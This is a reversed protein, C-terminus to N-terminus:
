SDGASGKWSMQSYSSSYTVNGSFYEGASHHVGGSSAMSRFHGQLYHNLEEQTDFILVNFPSGPVHVDSWKVELRYDGPETPDYKCLITRDKQSERQMEVRFAGKPGRVRVTLQGAGAGRTDCIFRSQYTALVGPEIGPGYVKVKSADPAGSIRVSYPSEPIHDGGYKITLVHRGGEQPKLYLTFTGDRHDYMECYAVKTPGMCHATLEGPGARRTDIFAKIEKGLIGGKLGDGSCIVKTADCSASISVKLPCGKVQRDSWMVNLLYVGPVTPTYIAKFINNQQSILCVPIDAKVGSLSVEPFGAGAASGDIIFEAEEGVRASSLGHGRLVVRTYDILPESEETYALYPSNPLPVDAFYLYMYYEGEEVPTFSLRYRSGAIHDVQIDIQGNPGMIEAKLKGPGADSTDFTIKKQEGCNLVIHNEDDVLNEWGGIVRVKRPNVVRPHFPSGTVEQSNWFVRIDFIGVEQPVYTVIFMGNEKEDVSYDAESDPGVVQIEPRGRLGRADINFTAANGCEALSLGPGVVTPTGGDHVTFTIPSDPIEMGGYTIGIKYKGPVTPMFEILEGEGDPTGKVEIPLHRGLPSTVTVDLEAYGSDQRKVAFQPSWEALLSGDKQHYCRVPVPSGSPSTIFVDFDNAGGYGGTEIFFTADEGLPLSKLGTGHVTITNTLDRVEIIQPCDALQHNGYYIDVKHPVSSNPTYTVQYVGQSVERASHYVEQGGAVIHIALNGQGAKTTDVKFNQERGIIGDVLDLIKVQTPDCVEVLYPKSTVPNGRHLVEIRHTGATQPHYEAQYLNHDLRLVSVPIRSDEPGIVCIEVSGDMERTEIEFTNLSGVVGHKLGEGKAILTSSSRTSSSTTTLKSENVTGERVEVKFPSGPVDEENFIANVYHSVRDQPVFTVDYLGRSKMSVEARVSSKRTTIVLELTGEGAQSADVQFTYPKGAVGPDMNKIKIKSIDYVNCMFPSGLVPNGDLTVIVQHPGVEVPFFQVEFTTTSTKSIDVPIKKSSPGTVLVKCEASELGRSDITFRGGKALSATKLSSDTIVSQKTDAVKVIFPSGPVPEGNFKVSVTHTEPESPKFNVRFKANGESQVYNPVNREGVTVIIELNGAGAQSADIGFYVSKGIVGSGLDSVKVKSADYAKVLFPSGGAPHGGIRVDVTHDGVETPTYEVRYGSHYNGNVYTKLNHQNPGMITVHPQGMNIGNTDVLFAVPHHLPVKELGEGSVQVKSLSSLDVILCEYPSGPVPESNFRIDILHPGIHKPTFSIAYLTPSQAQASTEVEGNNVMVDLNGPGANATEVLFTYLKGLFGTGLDKVKIQEADYVKSMFPSGPLPNECHNVHIRHEGTKKPSFEVNFSGMGTEEINYPLTKKDPGEIHVQLDKESGSINQITFIFTKHVSSAVLSSGVVLSKESDVVKIKFPSGPVSEKNFSVNVVHEVPDTPVFSVAFKASDLPHVQTQIKRGKAIVKIELNGEGAQSADVTFQVTKCITKHPIDSVEVKEADYAKVMHPSNPIISGAYEVLIKYPGVEKPVFEATFGSSGSRAIKVPLRSDDPSKVIVKLKSEQGGPINILFKATQRVSILQLDQLDVSSKDVDIVKITVPCGPINEGNFKIDVVHPTVFTPTFNVLCRGGGLVQVHNPVEGENVSIELQGEGAQSADVQFHCNQGVFVSDPVDCVRIRSTNYAKSTFPGGPVYQGAVLVEIMYTGVDFAKFEVCYKGNQLDVIRNQIDNKSPGTITVSIDEKKFGPASLEFSESHGVAFSYLSQGKVALQKKPDFVDCRWPSGPVSEGNFKMEITHTTASHPIFSALFHHNGLDKVESTVHGGNVLIELNGSGADAGSIEFEVAKGVFGNPVNGVKIKTADFVDCHFPSGRIAKGAVQIKITHEGAESPIYEVQYQNHRMKEIKFPLEKSSPAIITISIDDQHIGQASILFASSRKVPVMKLGHGKVTVQKVDVEKKQKKSSNSLNSTTEMVFTHQSHHGVNEERECRMNRRIGLDNESSSSSSSRKQEVLIKSKAKPVVKEDSFRSEVIRREGSVNLSSQRDRSNVETYSGVTIEPKTTTNKQKYVSEPERERSLYNKDRYENSSVWHSTVDQSHNLASSESRNEKSFLGVPSDRSTWSRTTVEVKPSKEQLPSSPSPSKIRRIDERSKTRKKYLDEYSSSLAQTDERFSSKRGLQLDERSYFKALGTDEKSSLLAKNVMRAREEFSLETGEHEILTNETQQPKKIYFTKSHVKAEQEVNYRPKAIERTLTTVYTGSNQDHHSASWNDAEHRRSHGSRSSDSERGSSSDQKEVGSSGIYISFPSGKIHMDNFTVYIRHKGDQSPTFTIWSIGNGREDVMMPLSRKNYQVDINVKGWGADSADCLFTSPEGKVLQELGKVKVQSPDFVYCTFPSGEIHEGSYTVSIKWEGIQDPTFTATYMGDKQSVNCPLRRGTPSIAEVLVTGEADGNSNILVEVVSGLACPDIGSHLIRSIDPHVNINIPCGTVIDGDCYVILEHLGTEVPIFTGTGGTRNLSLRCDIKGSSSKVEAKIKKADVMEDLINIKFHAPKNIHVSNLDIGMINIRESLRKRPRIWQFRSIYAMTGLYEVEPDAMEKATLLPEVGLYKGGNIGFKLNEEWASRGQSLHPYGPISAGLSHVLTCLALGDNWDTTFNQINLDPLKKQVWKLTSKYGPSNEKMFYSLYTMGSLEDLNPSAIDEPNLLIPINFVKKAIQMANSCNKEREEPNLSKWNSILGPECYDILASLAIGNNWDRTFNTVNLDPLTSQLWALMLKRPPFNTRGIQYRLILSWILGLILKLNGEVIDTNGINVLKINDAAMANLATQVNELYQHQNIPKRIKKLKKKQLVEILALLKLGDCFDTRLDHVILNVPKLQENVWNTFTKEQIEIWIFEDGKINMARAAHGEPSRAKLGIHSFGLDGQKESEM